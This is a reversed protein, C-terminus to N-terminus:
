LTIINYLVINTRYYGIITYKEVDHWIASCLIVFLVYRMIFHMSKTQNRFVSNIKYGYVMLFTAVLGISISQLHERILSALDYVISNIM